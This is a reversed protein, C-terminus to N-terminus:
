KSLDNLIMGFYLAIIASLINGFLVIQIDTLLSALLWAVALNTFVDSSIELVSQSSPLQM